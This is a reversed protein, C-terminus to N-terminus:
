LKTKNVPSFIEKVNSSAQLLLTIYVVTLCNTRKDSIDTRDKSHTSHVQSHLITPSTSDPLIRCPVKAQKAIATITLICQPTERAECKVDSQNIMFLFNDAPCMQWEDYRCLVLINQFGM